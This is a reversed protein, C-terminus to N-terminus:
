LPASKDKKKKRIGWISGLLTVPIFGLYAVGIDM